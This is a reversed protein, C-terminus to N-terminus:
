EAKMLVVSTYPQLTISGTYIAGTVGSDYAGSTGPALANVAHWSGPPLTKSVASKTANFELRLDKVSAATRWTKKTGQDRGWQQWKDLSLFRSGNWSIGVVGGGHFNNFGGYDRYSMDPDYGLGGNCCNPYGSTDIDDPEFVPRFYRNNTITGLSRIYQQQEAPTQGDLPLHVVLVRQEREFAVCLNDHFRLDTPYTALDKVTQGISLQGVRNDALTNHHATVRANEGSQLGNQAVRFASNDYLDVDTTNGDMYLGQASANWPNGTAEVIGETNGIGDHVINGAVTRRSSWALRAGPSGGGYTYIGGGDGKLM